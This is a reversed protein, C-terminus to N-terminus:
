LCRRRILTPTVRKVKVVAESTAVDLHLYRTHVGRLARLYTRLAAGTGECAHCHGERHGDGDDDRAWEHVGHRVTAPSPHSGRYRQWEDTDLTTSGVPVHAAILAACTHTDAHDCGWFRHEGTDWSVVRIIPPRDHAHTGHGKRKNARRRPPDSPTPHRPSKEGANYYLEDAEFATGRMVETPATTNLHAQTRQRLTHLQKRSLGLARALHATPEGKAMGRWLLVLTAPRQRTKTFVTGIQLTYYGECARCRYAPFHEHARFLRRERHGCPPCTLGDPHPHRERWLTCISDDLLAAIPFDIMRCLYWM